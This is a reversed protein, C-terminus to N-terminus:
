VHKLIFTYIFHFLVDGNIELVFTLQIGFGTVSKANTEVGVSVAPLQPVYVVFYENEYAFSV